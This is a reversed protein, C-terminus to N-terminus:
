LTAHTLRPRGEKQLLCFHFLATLWKCGNKNGNKKYGNWASVIMDAANTKVWLSGNLQEIGFVERFRIDKACYPAPSGRDRVFDDCRKAAVLWLTKGDIDWLRARTAQEDNLSQPQYYTEAFPNASDRNTDSVIIVPASDGRQQWFHPILINYLYLMAKEQLQFDDLGKARLWIGNRLADTLSTHNAESSGNFMEQVFNHTALNQAYLIAGIEEKLDGETATENHTISDELADDLKGTAWETVADWAGEGDEFKGGSIKNFGKFTGGFM